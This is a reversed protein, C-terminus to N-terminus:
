MTDEGALVTRSRGQRKAQYLAIDARSVLSDPDEDGQKIAVGFSLAVPLSHEGWIVPRCSIHQRIREVVDVARDADLGPLLVLFEEGGWRACFDYERLTEDLRTAVEKLVADGAEHGYTDNVDKFNDLDGMGIALHTGEREARKAETTLQEGMARRNALGTMPDTLSAQEFAENAEMLLSQLLDGIRSVKRLQRETKYYRDALWRLEAMLPHDRNTPNAELEELRREIQDREESMTGAKGRVNGLEDPITLGRDLPQM